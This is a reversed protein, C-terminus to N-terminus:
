IKVETNWNILEDAVGPFYERLVKAPDEIDTSIVEDRIHDFSWMNQETKIDMGVLRHKRPDKLCVTKAGVEQIRGWMSGDLGHSLGPEWPQWDLRELLSRSLCRGLGLRQAQGWIMRGSMADYFYCGPLYVFEAGGAVLHRCAEIYEPTVLDDSGVIIVADPNHIGHMMDMGELWKDSLPDNACFHLNWHYSIKHDEYERESIAAVRVLESAEYYGLVLETLRPRGWIATLIGLNM